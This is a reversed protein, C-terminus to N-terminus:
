YVFFRVFELEGVAARLEFGAEFVGVFFYVFEDIFEVTYSVVFDFDDLSIFLYKVCLSAFTIAFYRLPFLFSEIYFYGRRVEAFGRADM